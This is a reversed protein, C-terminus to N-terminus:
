PGPFWRPAVPTNVRVLQPTDTRSLVVSRPGQFVRRWGHSELTAIVPCIRPLWAHDPNLRAVEDMAGPANAYIRVHLARMRDSYVTERRGDMSVRIAPSLHWIAYEGYDFWTLMRGRLGHTAIFTAAEPEPMWPADARIRRGFLPLACAGALICVTVFRALWTRRRTLDDGAAAPERLCPVLLVAVAIAFFGVLRVVRVGGVAFVLAILLSSLPVTRKRWVAFAALAAPVLWLAIVFAGMDSLPRWEVIDGRDPRVTDALFALMGTGYPNCLTAVLAAATTAALGAKTRFSTTRDFLACLTFILLAVAGVIWGGHFNVWAAFMPPVGFLWRLRGSTRVRELVVLLWAFLVLSFLQPRVFQLQPWASMAVAFLLGDRWMAPFAHPRWSVLLALAVLCALVLKLTVLGPAGALRYASWMTVEALWEHNVWPQDSTFSYTDTTQVSGTRVIDRGFTLHGWLDADAPTVALFSLLVFASVVPLVAHALTSVAPAGRLSPPVAHAVHM